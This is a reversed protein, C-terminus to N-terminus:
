EIECACLPNPAELVIEWRRHGLSQVGLWLPNHAELVILWVGTLLQGAVVRTIYQDTDDNIADSPNAARLEELGTRLDPFSRDARM